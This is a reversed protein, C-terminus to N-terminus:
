TLTLIEETDIMVFNIPLVHLKQELTLTSYGINLYFLRELSKEGLNKLWLKQVLFRLFSILLEFSESKLKTEV